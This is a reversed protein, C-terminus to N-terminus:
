NIFYPSVFLPQNPTLICCTVFSIASTSFNFFVSPASTALTPSFLGASFAPRLAPSIIKFNSSFFIFVILSKGFITEFVSTPLVTSNFIQLFLFSIVLFSVNPLSSDESSKLASFLFNLGFILSFSVSISVNFIVTLFIVAFSM